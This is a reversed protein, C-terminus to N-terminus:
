LCRGSAILFDMDLNFILFKLLHSSSLPFSFSYAMFSGFYFLLHEIIVPFLFWDM